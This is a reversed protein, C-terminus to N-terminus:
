LNPIIRSADWALLIVVVSPQPGFIWALRRRKKNIELLWFSISTRFGISKLWSVVSVSCLLNM